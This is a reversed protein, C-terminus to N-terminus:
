LLSAADVETIFSRVSISILTIFALLRTFWAGLLLCCTPFNVLRICYHIGIAVSAVLHKARFIYTVIKLKKRRTAKGLIPLRNRLNNENNKM